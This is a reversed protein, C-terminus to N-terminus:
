SSNYQGLERCQMGPRWVLSWACIQTVRHSARLYSEHEQWIVHPEVIWWGLGMVLSQVQFSTSWYSSGRFGIQLKMLRLQQHRSSGEGEGGSHVRYPMIVMSMVLFVSSRALTRRGGRIQLYRERRLVVEEARGPILLWPMTRMVAAKRSVM